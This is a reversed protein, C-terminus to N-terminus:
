AEVITSPDFWRVIAHSYKDALEWAKDYSDFSEVVKGRVIVDYTMVKEEKM